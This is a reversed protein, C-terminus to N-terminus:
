PLHLHVHITAERWGGSMTSSHTYLSAPIGLDSLYSEARLEWHYGIDMEQVYMFINYVCQTDYLFVVYCM